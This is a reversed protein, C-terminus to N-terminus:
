VTRKGGEEPTTARNKRYLFGRSLLGSARKSPDLIKRSPANEPVNEEGWVNQVGMDHGLRIKKLTQDKSERARYMKDASSEPHNRCLGLSTAWITPPYFTCRMHTLFILGELFILVQCKASLKQLNKGKRLLVCGDRSTINKPWFSNLFVDFNNCVHRRLQHISAAWNRGRFQANPFILNEFFVASKQLFSCFGASFRM